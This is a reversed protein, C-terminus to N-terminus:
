ANELGKTDIAWFGEKQIKGRPLRSVHLLNTVIQVYKKEEGFTPLLNRPRRQHSRMQVTIAM